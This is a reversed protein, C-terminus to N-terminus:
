EELSLPFLLTFESGKGPTSQVEVKGGHAEIVHKVITLGLGAGGAGHTKGERARFFPEFIHPIEESTIGIGKDAVRLAVFGDRRSLAISIEKEDHSYKIANSILNILVETLADKDANIICEKDCLKEHVTCKEIKLQYRLIRLVNRVLANLEIESFHYEKVGREIKAFDLVNNILRTLRESEGEIIELYENTDSKSINNRTRLLEAFMKISTLPTKLDHSVSSVFYSKLKNLEELRQTEAQEILLKQQLVIREVTLGAQTTISHL